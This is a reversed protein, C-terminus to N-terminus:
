GVGKYDDSTIRDINIIMAKDFLSIGGARDTFVVM